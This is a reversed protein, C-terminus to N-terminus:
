GLIYADTIGELYWFEKLVEDSLEHCGRIEVSSLHKLNKLSRFQTDNIALWSVNLIQLRHLWNSIFFLTDTKIGQCAAIELHELTDKVQELTRIGESTIHRCCNLNLSKLRTLYRVEALGVDTLQTCFALNLKVLTQMSSLVCLELYTVGSCLSLDLIELSRCTLHHLGEQSVRVSNRLILVKLDPMRNSIDALVENTVWNCCDALKLQKLSWCRDFPAVGHIWSGDLRTCYALDLIQLHQLRILHRVGADTINNLKGLNLERLWHLETLLILCLDNIESCSRLSLSTLHTLHILDSLSEVSVMTRELDLVQLEKLQTLALIGTETMGHCEGLDLHTLNQLGAIIQLSVDTVPNWKLHLKRLKTLGLLTEGSVGTYGVYSAPVSSRCGDLNLQELQNFNQAVAAIGKNTVGHCKSLNLWKLKKPNKRSYIKSLAILRVDNVENWCRSLDLATLNPFAQPIDLNLHRPTLQAIRAKVLANFRRNVSHLSKLHSRGLQTLLREFIDESVDAWSAM